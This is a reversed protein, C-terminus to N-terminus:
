EYLKEALIKNQWGRVKSGWSPDAAYKLGILETTTLGQDVYNKKLSQSVIEIQEDINQFEIYGGGWGVCNNTSAIYARCFGSEVGAIAPFLTWDIQNKDAEFVIHQAHKALQSNQHNLFIELKLPRLDFKPFSTPATKQRFIQLQGSAGAELEKGFAIKLFALSFLLYLILIFFLRKFFAIAM